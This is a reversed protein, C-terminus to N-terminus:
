NCGGAMGRSARDRINVDETHLVHLVFSKWGGIRRAKEDVARNLSSSCGGGGDEEERELRELRRPFVGDFGRPRLAVSRVDPKVLSKNAFM